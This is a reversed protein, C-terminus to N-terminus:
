WEEVKEWDEVQTSAVFGNEVEVEIVEISPSEYKLFEEKEM